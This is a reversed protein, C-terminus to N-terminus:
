LNPAYTVARSILPNPAPIDGFERVTCRRTLAAITEADRFIDSIRYQSTIIVRVPRIRISDGKCEAIFDFKDCWLKLHHGLVSHELGLDELIVTEENQYGDWWKNAAKLYYGPFELRASTSKGSGSPGYYWHGTTTEQAPISRMHDRAIKKFTSYYRIRLDHPIDDMEGITAHDWAAKWKDALARGGAAAPAVPIDGAEWFVGDKRCYDRNQTPSGKAIEFHARPIWDRLFGLRHRSCFSIYGQLHPTGEAGTEKGFCLYRVVDPLLRRAQISNVDDDTYNNLTFCWHKASMTYRTVAVLTISYRTATACKIYHHKHSLM